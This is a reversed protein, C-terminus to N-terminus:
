ITLQLVHPSLSIMRDASVSMTANAM